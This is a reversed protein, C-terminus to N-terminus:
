VSRRKNSSIALQTSRRGKEGFGGLGSFFRSLSMRCSDHGPKRKTQILWNHESSPWRKACTLLRRSDALTISHFIIVYFVRKRGSEHSSALSDCCNVTSHSNRLGNVLLQRILSFLSITSTVLSLRGEMHLICLCNKKNIISAHSDDVRRHTLHKNAWKECEGLSASEGNVMSLLGGWQQKETSIKQWWMREAKNHRSSSIPFLHASSSCVHSVRNNVFSIIWPRRPPSLAHLCETSSKIRVFFKIM